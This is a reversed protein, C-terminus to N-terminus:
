TATANSGDNSGPRQEQALAVPPAKALQGALSLRFADIEYAPKGLPCLGTVPRDADIEYGRLLVV